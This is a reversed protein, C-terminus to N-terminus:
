EAGGNIPVMMADLDAIRIRVSRTGAVKYAPLTGDAIRRWITKLALDYIASAAPPSLWERERRETDSTPPTCTPCTSPTTVPLDAM